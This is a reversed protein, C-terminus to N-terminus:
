SGGGGSDGAGRSGGRQRAVGWSTPGTMTSLGSHGALLFMLSTLYFMVIFQYSCTYIFIFPFSVIVVFLSAFMDLQAQSSSSSGKGQKCKGKGKMKSLLHHFM